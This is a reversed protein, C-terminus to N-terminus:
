LRCNINRQIASGRCNSPVHNLVLDGRSTWWTQWWLQYRKSQNRVAWSRNTTVRTKCQKAVQMMSHNSIDRKNEIEKRAADQSGHYSGPATYRQKSSGTRQGPPSGPVQATPRSRSPFVLPSLTQSHPGGVFSTPPKLYTKNEMIYTIIRGM